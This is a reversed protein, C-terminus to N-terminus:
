QEMAEIQDSGTARAKEYLEMKTRFDKVRVKYRKLEHEIIKLTTDGIKHEMLFQHFQTFNSYAQFVNLLYLTMELSDKFQERLTRSVVGFLTEHELMFVMNEHNYCLYLFCMSAKVKSEAKEEYFKEIYEDVQQINVKSFDM